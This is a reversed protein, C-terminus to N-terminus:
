EWSFDKFHILYSKAGESLGVNVDGRHEYRWAAEELMARRLENPLTSYGCTYTVKCRGGDFVSITKDQQGDVEYDTNVTLAEYTAVDSKKTVSTVSTVPGYPIKYEDEGFDFTWIRTQEGISIGCYREAAERVQKVLSTLYTDDDTHTIALHTKVEAVTLLESAVATSVKVDFM